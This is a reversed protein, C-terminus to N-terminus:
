RRAAFPLEFPSREALARRWGEAAEMRGTEALLEARLYRELAHTHFPSAVTLQFWIDGRVQELAALAREADGRLRHLRGEASRALNWAFIGGHPPAPLTELAAVAARCAAEDGLRAELHALLYARLHAHLGDHMALPLQLSPPIAAPDLAAVADRVRAIEAAPLEVFPLAAFLGGIEVALACDHVAAEALMGVATDYSGAALALYARMVHCLAKLGPARAEEVFRAAIRDAGALDRGYVSVYAFANAVALVRARMLEELVAEQAARDGRLSARLARVALAQDHDPSLALLREIRVEAEEREGELAAIRVLHAQAAVHRGDFALARSFAHRSETLSRGRMPNAHFLLDGLLFWAEVDDPYVATVTAYLGEAEAV